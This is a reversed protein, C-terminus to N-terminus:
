KKIYADDPDQYACIMAEILVFRNPTDITYHILYPFVGVQLCHVDDYFV